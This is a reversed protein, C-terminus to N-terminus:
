NCKLTPYHFMGEMNLKEFITQMALCEERSREWISSYIQKASEYSEFEEQLTVGYLCGHIKYGITAYESYFRYLGLLNFDCPLVINKSIFGSPIDSTLQVNDLIYEFDCGFHQLFTNNTLQIFYPIEILRINNKSCYERM